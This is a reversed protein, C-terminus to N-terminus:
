IFMCPNYRPVILTWSPARVVKLIVYQDMKDVDVDPFVHKWIVKVEGAM